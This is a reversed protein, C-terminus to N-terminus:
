QHFTPLLVFIIWIALILVSLYIIIRYLYPIPPPSQPTLPSAPTQSTPLFAQIEQELIRIKNELHKQSRKQQFRTMGAIMTSIISIIVGLGQWAQDRLIQLLHNFM